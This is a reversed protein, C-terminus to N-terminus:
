LGLLVRLWEGVREMTRDTVRGWRNGLRVVSVARVDETKVFCRVKVGGEPPVLPIHSPIARDRTTIPLVIVMEANSRNFRDVSVVLVPRSGGQEHGLRPDLNAEWVDGRSIGPM